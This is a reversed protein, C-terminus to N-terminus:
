FPVFDGSRPEVVCERSRPSAGTVIMIFHISKAMIQSINFVIMDIVIMIHNNNKTNIKVRRGYKYYCIPRSGVSKTM